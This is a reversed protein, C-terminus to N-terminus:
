PEIRNIWYEAWRAFETHLIFGGRSYNYLVIARRAKKMPNDTLLGGFLNKM